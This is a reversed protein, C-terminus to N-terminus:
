LDGKDKRRKGKADAQRRRKNMENRPDYIDYWDDAKTSADKALTPDNATFHLEHALWSDDNVEEADDGGATTEQPADVHEEKARHLKNKFKELLAMTQAERSSAGRKPLQKKKEEFEAKQQKYEKIADDEPEEKKAAVADAKVAAQKRKLMQNKLEEFEAKAEAVQAKKKEDDGQFLRYNEPKEEEAESKKLKKRLNEMNVSEEPESTRKSNRATEPVAPASSLKPDDTLDHSSKSKGSFKKTAEITEDEDEEAEDGFSLLKFNKTAKSKSKPKAEKKEAETPEAKRRPIVDFPDLLVETRIIKHPYKPRDDEIDGEEFKLMNYLTNGAVKGFITHKNQLEPTAALTFFFQSGNDDKGANAMALLGRRSFRLRSHFEDKFPHGYISEGGEGTGTPDGGQVIFGRVVRHFPTGDYYGEMCLQIFNRCARPAEKGWLELDLDGVTTELLVKANTPPEQIYINSM